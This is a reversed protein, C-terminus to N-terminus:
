REPFSVTETDNLALSRYSSLIYETDTDLITTMIVIIWVNTTPLFHSPDGTITHLCESTADNRREELTSLYNHPLGIIRLSRRQVRELEEKLYQPLGGWVPSCYELIPRIKTLYTTVTSKVYSKM